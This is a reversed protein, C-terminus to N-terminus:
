DNTKSAYLCDVSFKRKLNRDDIPPPNGYRQKGGGSGIRLNNHSQLFECFPPPCFTDHSKPPPPPTSRALKPPRLFDSEDPRHGNGRLFIIGVGNGIRLYLAFFCGFFDLVFIKKQGGDGGKLIRQTQM